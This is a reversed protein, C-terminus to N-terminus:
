RAEALHRDAGGRGGHGVGHARDDAHPHGPSRRRVQRHTQAALAQVRAGPRVAGPVPVRGVLVAVVLHQHARRPRDAEPQRTAPTVISRSTPSRRSRGAPVRWSATTPRSPTVQRSACRGAPATGSSRRRAAPVQYRGPREASHRRCAARDRRGRRGARQDATPRSRRRSSWRRTRARAVGGLRGRRAAATGRLATVIELAADRRAAPGLRAPSTRCSSASSRCRSRAATSASHPAAPSPRPAGPPDGAAGRRCAAHAGPLGAGTRSASRSTPRSSSRTSSRGPASRM